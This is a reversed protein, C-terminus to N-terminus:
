KGEGIDRIYNSFKSRRNPDPCGGRGNPNPNKFRRRKEYDDEFNNSQYIPSEEEYFFEFFQSFQLLYRPPSHHPPPRHPPPQHSQRDHRSQYTGDALSRDNIKLSM